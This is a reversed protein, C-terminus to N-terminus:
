IKYAIKKGILARFQNVANTSKTDIGSEELPIIGKIGARRIIGCLETKNSNGKRINELGVLVDNLVLDNQYASQIDRWRLGEDAKKSKKLKSPDFGEILINNVEEVAMEGM